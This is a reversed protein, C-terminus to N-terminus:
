RRREDMLDLERQALSASIIEVLVFVFYSTVLSLCINFIIEIM